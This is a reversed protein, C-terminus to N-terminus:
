KLKKTIKGLASLSVSLVTAFLLALNLSQSQCVTVRTTTVEVQLVTGTNSYQCQGPYVDGDCENM